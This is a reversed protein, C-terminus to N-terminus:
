HILPYECSIAMIINATVEWFYFVLVMKTRYKDKLHPFYKLRDNRFTFGNCNFLDSAFRGVAPVRFPLKGLGALTIKGYWQHLPDRNNKRFQQINRNCMDYVFEWKERAKPKTTYFFHYLLLMPAMVVMTSTLLFIDYFASALTDNILNTSFMQILRDDHNYIGIATLTFRTLVHIGELVLVLHFIKRYPSNWTDLIYDIQSEIYPWRFPTFYAVYERFSLESM